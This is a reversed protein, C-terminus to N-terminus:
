ATVTDAQHVKTVNLRGYGFSGLKADEEFTSIPLDPIRSKAQIHADGSILGDIDHVSFHGDKTSVGLTRINLNLTKSNTTNNDDWVDLHTAKKIFGLLGGSIVLRFADRDETEGHFSLAFNGYRQFVEAWEITKGSRTHTEEFIAVAHKDPYIYLTKLNAKSM